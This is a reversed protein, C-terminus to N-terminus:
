TLHFTNNQKYKCTKIHTSKDTNKNTKALTAEIYSSGTSNTTDIPLFQNNLATKFQNREASRSLEDRNKLRLHEFEGYLNTRSHEFLADIEENKNTKLIFCLRM